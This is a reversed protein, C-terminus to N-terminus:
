KTERRFNSIQNLVNKGINKAKKIVEREIIYKQERNMTSGMGNQVSRKIKEIETFLVPESTKLIVLRMYPPLAYQRRQNYYTGIPEAFRAISEGTYKTTYLGDNTKNASYIVTWHGIQDEDNNVAMGLLSYKRVVGYEVMLSLKKEGSVYKGDTITMVYQVQEPQKGEYNYTTGNKSTLKKGQLFADFGVTREFRVGDIKMGGAECLFATFTSCISPSHESEGKLEDIKDYYGKYLNMVGFQRDPNLLSHCLIIFSNMKKIDLAPRDSEQDEDLLEGLRICFAVFQEETMDNYDEFSLDRIDDFSMREIEHVTLPTCGTPDINGLPDNNAYLYVVLHHPSTIEQFLPDKQVFRNVVPEYQRMRLNIMGTGADYDEANYAFGSTKSGMQEGFATYTYSQVEVQPLAASVSTGAAPASITQAVSGRGDYIYQTTANTDYAAIREVGYAYATTTTTNDKTTTQEIVQYYEQTIDYLYETTAWEYEAPIATEDTSTAAVDPAVIEPLGAIDGRLLEELTSRNSNGYESKSLRMGNADYAFRQQYGDYGTYSVLQDLSNYAYADALKGYQKSTLTKQVMSGNKDYGYTLKDKGNTMSVLQNGKNYTMKLAVSQGDTGTITKATMNGVKDYVYQEGYGTSQAFGTLEGLPDYTYLSEVASGNETRIEGTIYGNMNYSYRFSIDSSGTTSQEVLSGVVDYRYETTLNRSATEVRRGAANYAYTTVEGDLGTVSTMRNMSDYTYRVAHGDPYTMSTKNGYEDYTYSVVDGNVNTVSVLYGQQNYQYTITGESNKVTTVQGVENYSNEIGQNEGTNQATLNGTKDYEFTMVTGDAKTVSSLWGEPTYAYTVTNGLADTETLLNGNKDYTYKTVHKMADTVQAINDLADYKYSTTNGAEDVVATLRNVKDYKYHKTYGEGDTEATVNGALDYSLSQTAGNAYTVQALLNEPTYVFRTTNGLPDTEGIINGLADYAYATEAGDPTIVKTLRGLLDYEYRTVQQGQAVSTVNGLSDYTYATTLGTRPTIRVVRGLLDYETTEATGDPYTIQVLNGNLDYGFEVRRGEADTVVTVNGALDYEYATANGNVTLTAIQGNENYGYLTVCGEADTSSLARGAADYEYLTIAKGPATIKTINGLADYEFTAKQGMADTIQTVQGNKDYRYKTTNQNADTESIIRGSKDYGTAIVGGNKQIAATANGNKDYELSVTQGLADTMSVLNGNLDYSYTTVNGLADTTAVLNGVSDYTYHTTAGNPDTESVLRNQADYRYITMNGLGDTVTLLNGNVDYTYATVAGTPDTISTLRGLLDYQITTVGGLANTQRIVNGMEDYEASIVGGGPLTRTLMNGALDYTMTQTLGAADTVSLPFGLADYTYTTVGGTPSTERVLNGALNYESATVNGMPDTLTIQNGSPDYTYRTENGMGDRVSDLQYNKTYTATQVTGDPLRTKILNGLADYQYTTTNGMPDTMSTQRGMADYTYTISSGDAFTLCLLNGKADHTYLTTNGLADTASALFGHADYQYTTENSLPDVTKTLLGNVYEYRTVNGLADTQAILRGKQDHEYRTLAGNPATEAILNSNEDYEYITVGGSLDTLRTLNHRDDYERLISGGSPLVTATLDGAPNYAYTTVNGMPDTESVIEGNEGYTFTTEGGRADIIHTTHKWQDFYYTVQNGEADTTITHDEAYKLQYKGRLADEQYIVRSQDDYKNRVQCKGSADTWETMRGQRDYKYKTTNGEADTFSVLQNNKYAYTLEAGGPTVISTIHGNEDMQVKLEEHSPSLISTIFGDENRLIQLIHQGGDKEIRSLLGGSAFVYVTGDTLTIRYETGADDYSLTEYETTNSTFNGDPQRYFIIESGDGRRLAVSGDSFLRLHMSYETAWKAGFPGDTESSQTNYTRVIDFGGNGLDALSYDRTQLFFNGTNFNIPEFGLSCFRNPGLLSQDLAFEVSPPNPTTSFTYNGGYLHNLYESQTFDVVNHQVGELRQEAPIYVYEASVKNSRRTLTRQLTENPNEYVRRAAVHYSANEQYDYDEYRTSRTSGLHEGNRYIDFWVENECTEDDRNPDSWTLVYRRLKENEYYDGYDAVQVHYPAKVLTTSLSTTDATVGELHVARLSVGSPLTARFYLSDTAKPLFVYGGPAFDTWTNGDFSYAFRGKTSVKGTETMCLAELRLAYVEEPLALKGSLYEDKVDLATRLLISSAAGSGHLSGNEEVGFAAFRHLTGDAFPLLDATLGDNNWVGDAYLRTTAFQASSDTAIPLLATTNETQNTIKFSNVPRLLKVSYRLPNSEYVGTLDLGQLMTGTGQMSVRLKINKQPADLYVDYGPAISQWTNGGDVSYHYVIRGGQSLKELTHLRIALVPRDSPCNVSVFSGTDGTLVAGEQSTSINEASELKSADRWSESLILSSAMGKSYHLEGNKSRSIISLSHLSNEPFLIPHLPFRNEIATGSPFGDIIYCNEIEPEKCDVDYSAQADVTTIVEGPTPTQINVSASIPTANHEAVICLGQCVSEHGAADSAKLVIEITEGDAFEDTNLVGLQANVQDSNGSSIEVIKGSSGTAILTWEALARDQVSGWVDQVGTVVDGNQPSVLETIPATADLYLTHDFSCSNGLADTLRLTITHQGDSLSSIDITQTGDTQLETACFPDDNVAYEIAALGSYLDEAGQWFLEVTESDTWGSPNLGSTSLVPISRDIKISVSAAIGINGAVDVGRVSLTHEGDSLSSIDLPFGVYTKEAINTSVFASGDLSYEVRLLDNVDTIGSWTLSATSEITWDAPLLTLEPATPPAKDVKIETGKPQGYNGSADMGRIYIAHVGDAMNETPLDFSGNATNATTDQWAWLAPDAGSPLFPPM